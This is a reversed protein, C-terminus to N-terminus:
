PTGQLLPRLGLYGYVLLGLAGGWLLVGGLRRARPGPAYDLFVSWLGNAAHYLVAPVFLAYYITWAHGDALRATITAWTLQGSSVGHVAWLHM